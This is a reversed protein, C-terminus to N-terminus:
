YINHKRVEETSAMTTSVHPKAHPVHRVTPEALHMRALQKGLEAPDARGSMSLYEMVIFSGNGHLAGGGPPGPLPGYHFVQPIRLTNTATPPPPPSTKQEYM